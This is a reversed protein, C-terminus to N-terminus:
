TFLMPHHLTDDMFEAVNYLSILSQAKTVIKLFYNKCPSRIHHHECSRMKVVQLTELNNVSVYRCTQKEFSNLEPLKKIKVIKEKM